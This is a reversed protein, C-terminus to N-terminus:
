IGQMYTETPRLFPVQDRLRLSLRAVDANAASLRARLREREAAAAAGEASPPPAAASAAQLLSSVEGELASKQQELCLQRRMTM